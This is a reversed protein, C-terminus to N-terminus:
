GPFNTIWGTKMIEPHHKDIHAEQERIDFLPLMTDCGPCEVTRPKELKRKIRQALEAGTPIDKEPNM